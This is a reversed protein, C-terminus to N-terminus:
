SLLIDFVKLESSLYYILHLKLLTFQVTIFLCCFSYQKLSSDNAKVLDYLWLSAILM